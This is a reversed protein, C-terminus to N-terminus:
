RSYERMAKVDLVLYGHHSYNVMGAKRLLNMATSVRERRVGVMQSIEEQTLYASLVVGHRSYRGMQSALKLLVRILRHMIDSFALSNLQEYADALSNCFVRVLQRLLNRDKQVIELIEDFPVTIIEARDLVIARDQRTHSSACLEGVIDGRKRVDYILEHGDETITGIKVYGSRIFFLARNEDGAEYLAQGKDFTTVSRDKLVLDCLKGRFITSLAPSLLAHRTRPDSIHLVQKPEGLRRPHQGSPLIAEIHQM